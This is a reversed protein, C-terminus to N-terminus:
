MRFSGSMSSAALKGTVGDYLEGRTRIITKGTKIVFVKLLAKEGYNISRLFTVQMDSMVADSDGAIYNAVTGCGIEMMAMIVAGDITGFQNIQWDQTEFSIVATQTDFDAEELSYRLMKAFKIKKATIDLKEKLGEFWIQQNNM